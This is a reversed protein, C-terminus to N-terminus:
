REISERIERIAGELHPAVMSRPASVQIESRCEEHLERLHEESATKGLLDPGRVAQEFSEMARAVPDEANGVFWHLVWQGSRAECIIVGITAFPDRAALPVFHVLSFIFRM